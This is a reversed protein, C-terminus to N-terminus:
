NTSWWNYVYGDNYVPKPDVLNSDHQMTSNMSSSPEGYTMTPPYMNNYADQQQHDQNGLQQQQMKMYQDHNPFGDFINLYSHEQNNNYAEEQQQHEPNMAPWYPPQMQMGQGYHNMTPWQEFPPPPQMQMGQGYHNMTPWQEFPPPPQMQMGQGYHNMTPWQEFPPPPQMQMGQGYYLDEQNNMPYYNDTPITEGMGSGHGTNDNGHDHSIGHDDSTNTNSHLELTESDSNENENNGGNDTSPYNHIDTDDENNSRNSKKKGFLGRLFGFGGRRRSRRNGPLNSRSSEGDHALINYM